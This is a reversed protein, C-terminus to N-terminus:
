FPKEDEEKLKESAGPCLMLLAPVAKDLPVFCINSNSYIRWQNEVLRLTCHEWGQMNNNKANSAYFHIGM